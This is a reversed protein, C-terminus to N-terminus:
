GDAQGPQDGLQREFEAIVAMIDGRPGHVMDHLEEETFPTDAGSHRAAAAQFIALGARAHALQDRLQAVERRLREVEAQDALAPDPPGPPTGNAIPDESM